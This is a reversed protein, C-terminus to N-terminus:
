HRPVSRNPCKERTKRKPWAAAGHRRAKWEQMGVWGKNSGSQGQTQHFIHLINFSTPFWMFFIVSKPHKFIYSTSSSVLTFPTNVRAALRYLPTPNRRGTDEELYAKDTLYRGRRSPNLTNEELYSKKSM